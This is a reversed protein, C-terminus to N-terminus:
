EPWEIMPTLNAATARRKLKHDFRVFAECHKSRALHTADAFDLGQAYADVNALVMARDEISVHPLACLAKFVHTIDAHSLRHCLSILAPETSDDVHNKLNPLRRERNILGDLGNTEVLEQYRYFTDRSVGM